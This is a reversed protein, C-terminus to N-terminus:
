VAVAVAIDHDVAIPEAMRHRCGYGAAFVGVALVSWVLLSSPEPNVLIHPAEAAGMTVSNADMSRLVEAGDLDGLRLLRVSGAPTDRLANDVMLKRAFSDLPPQSFAASDRRFPTESALAVPCAVFIGLVIGAIQVAPRPLQNM